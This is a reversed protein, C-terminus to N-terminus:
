LAGNCRRRAIASWYEFSPTQGPPTDSGGLSRGQLVSSIANLM